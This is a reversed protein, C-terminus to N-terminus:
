VLLRGGGLADVLLKVLERERTGLAEGDIHRWNREYLALADNPTIEAVRKRQWAIRKLQPYDALRITAPLKAAAEMAGGPRSDLLEIDLGLAAIVSM